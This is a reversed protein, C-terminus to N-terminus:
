QFHPFDHHFVTAESKTGEIYSPAKFKLKGVTFCHQDIGIKRIISFTDAFILLYYLGAIIDQQCMSVKVMIHMNTVERFFEMWLYKHLSIGGDLRHNEVLNRNIIDDRNIM